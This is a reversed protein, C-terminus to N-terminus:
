ALFVFEGAADGYFDTVAVEVGVCGLLGDGVGVLVVHDELCHFLEEQFYVGAAEQDPEDADAEGVEDGAVVLDIEEVVRM